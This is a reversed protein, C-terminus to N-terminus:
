NEGQEPEEIFDEYFAEEFTLGTAKLVAVIVSKRTDSNGKVANLLISHAVGIEKAAVPVNGYKENICKILRKYKCNSEDSQTVKIDKLAGHFMEWIVTKSVCFHKGVDEYSKGNLLMELAKLRQENTM